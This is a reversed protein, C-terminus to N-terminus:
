LTSIELFLILEIGWGQHRRRHKIDPDQGACSLRHREWPHSHTTLACPADLTVRRSLYNSISGYACFFHKLRFASPNIGSSLRQITHIVRELCKTDNKRSRTNEIDKQSKKSYCTEEIEQLGLTWKWAMKELTWWQALKM